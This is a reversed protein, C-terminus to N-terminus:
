VTRFLLDCSIPNPFDIQEDAGTLASSSRWPINDFAKELEHKVPWIFCEWTPERQLPPPPYQLFHQSDGGERLEAAKHSPALLPFGVCLVYFWQGSTQFLLVHSPSPYLGRKHTVNKWDKFKFLAFKSLELIAIDTELPCFFFFFYFGPNRLWSLHGQGYTNANHSRKGCLVLGPILFM